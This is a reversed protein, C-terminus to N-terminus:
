IAAERFQLALEPGPWLKPASQHLVENQRKKQLMMRVLCVLPHARRM